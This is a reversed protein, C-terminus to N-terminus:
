GHNVGNTSGEAGKFLLELPAIRQATITVSLPVGETLDSYDDKTMRVIYTWDHAVLTGALFESQVIDRAEDRSVPTPSVSEVSMQKGNVNASDGVQIASAETEPLFCVVGDKSLTGEARISSQATGFLGWTILGIALSICAALVVWFSLTSARVYENLNDASRLKSRAKETFLVKNDNRTM